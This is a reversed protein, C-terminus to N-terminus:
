ALGRFAVYGELNDRDSFLVRSVSLKKMIEALFCTACAIVDARRVDMGAIQKREEVPLRLLREATEAVWDFSLELHNLREADYESLALKVCALTSATGGIAYLDRAPKAGSLAVLEREIVAKIRTKDDKCSEYLRVAGVNMSVSFETTGNKRFCVETSAGGIDVIGGDKGALAGLIGLQAEDKGSVVDVTLNCRRKVCACFEEGNRSQRVAATAFAYVNAGQAEGERCFEEVAQATRTIAAESLIGNEALSESLRTTAVKKYLSKGDAWLMLRVSNSGIDIIALKMFDILEATNEM